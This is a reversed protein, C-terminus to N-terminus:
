RLTSPPSAVPSDAPIRGTADLAVADQKAISFGRAARLGADGLVLAAAWGVAVELANQQEPTPDWLGFSALLACIVPIGSLIQAPTIDPRRGGLIGPKPAPSTTPEALTTM